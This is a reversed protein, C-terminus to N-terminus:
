PASPHHVIAAGALRALEFLLPKYRAKDAQYADWNLEPILAHGSPGGAVPDPRVTLGLVLLDAVALKAVAYHARLAPDIGDLLEAPAAFRARVVSLGSVDQRSPRFAEYLVPIAATASYFRPHIRRFIYEDHEVPDCEDM